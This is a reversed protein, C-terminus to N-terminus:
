LNNVKQSNIDPFKLIPYLSLVKERQISEQFQDYLPLMTKSINDSLEKIFKELNAKNTDYNDDLENEPKNQM